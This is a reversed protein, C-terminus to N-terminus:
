DSCLEAYVSAGLRHVGADLYKVVDAYTRIGGSAKVKIGTGKTINLLKEIVPLSAGGPGFGTSTKIFDVEAGICEQCAEELDEWCYYCSELIAKVMVGERHAMATIPALESHIIGFDGALFRGYNVVVDLEKAGQQIAIEAERLKAGIAVNGHPFGIVSTIYSHGRAAAAVNASAVCVSKVYQMAFYEAVETVEYTSATPHLIAVDLVRAIQLDSYM